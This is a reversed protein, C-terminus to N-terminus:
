ACPDRVFVVGVALWGPGLGQSVQYETHATRSVFLVALENHFSGWHAEEFAQSWPHHDHHRGM